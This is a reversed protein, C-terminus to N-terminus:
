RRPQQDADLSTRVRRPQERARQRGAHPRADEPHQAPLSREIRGKGHRQTAREVPEVGLHPRHEADAQELGHHEPDRHRHGGIGRDPRHAPESLGRRSPQDVRHQTPCSRRPGRQELLRGRIQPQGVRLPDVPAPQTLEALLRRLPRHSRVLLRRRHPHPPPLLLGPVGGLRRADVQVRVRPAWAGPGRRLVGPPQQGRHCGALGVDLVWARLEDGVESQSETATPAQRVHARRGAAFEGQPAM